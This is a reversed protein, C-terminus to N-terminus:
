TEMVMCQFCCYVDLMPDVPIEPSTFERDRVTVGDRDRIM